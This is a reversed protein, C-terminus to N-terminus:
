AAKAELKMLVVSFTMKRKNPLLAIFKMFQM